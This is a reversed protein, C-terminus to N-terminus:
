LLPKYPRGSLLKMALSAADIGCIQQRHHIQQRWPGKALAHHVEQDPLRSRSGCRRHGQARQGLHHALHRARDNVAITAVDDGEAIGALKHTRGDHLFIAVSWLRSTDKIWHTHELHQSGSDAEAAQWSATTLM